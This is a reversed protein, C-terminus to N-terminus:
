VNVSPLLWSEVVVFADKVKEREFDAIVDDVVVSRLYNRLKMGIYLFSFKKEKKKM